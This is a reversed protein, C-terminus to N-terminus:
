WWMRRLRRRSKPGVNEERDRSRCRRAFGQFRFRFRHFHSSLPMPLVLTEIRNPLLLRRNSRVPAARPLNRHIEVSSSFRCVGFIFLCIFLCFLQLHSFLTHSFFSGLIFSFLVTVSIILRKVGPKTNRTTKLDSEPTQTQTNEEASKSTSPSDSIEAM